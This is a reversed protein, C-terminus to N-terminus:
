AKYGHKLYYILAGFLVASGIVGAIYKGKNEGIHKTVTDKTRAAEIKLFTYAARMKELWTIEKEHKKLEELMQNMQEPNIDDLAIEDFAASDVASDVVVPAQATQENSPQIPQESASIQSYACPCCMFGAMLCAFIVSNKM